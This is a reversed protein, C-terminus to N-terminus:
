YDYDLREQFMDDEMNNVEGVYYTFQAQLKRQLIERDKITKADRITSILQNIRDKTEEM